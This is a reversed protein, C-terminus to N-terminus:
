QTILILTMLTWTAVLSHIQSSLSLDSSFKTLSFNSTPISPPVRLTSMNLELQLRAYSKTTVTTFDVSSSTLYYTVILQWYVPLLLENKILVIDHRNNM